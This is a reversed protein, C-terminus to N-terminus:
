RLPLAPPPRQAQLARLEDQLVEVRAEARRARRRIRLESLWVICAGILFAVAAVALVAGALPVELALDTPWFKLVVPERNSLAFLVLVILFPTALLLRM